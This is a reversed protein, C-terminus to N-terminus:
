SRVAGTVAPTEGEARLGQGGQRDQEELEQVAGRLLARLAAEEEPSLNLVARLLEEDVELALSM